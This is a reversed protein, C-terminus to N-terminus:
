TRDGVMERYNAAGLLADIRVSDRSLPLLIARFLITRGAHQGSAGISIPIRKDVVRPYSATAMKLLTGDPCESLTRVPPNWATAELADGVHLFHPGRESDLDLILCCPWDASMTEPVIEERTPFSRVGRLEEWRRLVRLVLRREQEQEKARAQEPPPEIEPAPTQEQDQM